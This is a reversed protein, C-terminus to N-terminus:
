RNRSTLFFVGFMPIAMVAVLLVALTSGYSLNGYSFTTKYVYYNLVNTVDGPGGGTLVQILPFQRLVEVVRFIIAFGLVPRIAPLTIYRFAQWESAGDTRAAELPENPLALLGALTLVAVVPAGTWTDALIVALLATHPNGLWDQQPLHALSFFYNVWGVGTNLLARWSVASAVSAVMLPILYLARFASVGRMTRSLLLAIGFGLLTELTVAAVAFVVTTHLVTGIIPDQVMLRYNTLGTFVLHPTAVTYNTFSLYVAAGIPVATVAFVLLFAPLSSLVFFTSGAARRRRRPARGGRRLM